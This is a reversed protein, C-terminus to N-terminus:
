FIRFTIFIFKVLVSNVRCCLAVVYFLQMVFKILERAVHKPRLVGYDLRKTFIVAPTVYTKYVYEFSKCLFIYIKCFFIKYFTQSNWWFQFSFISNATDM